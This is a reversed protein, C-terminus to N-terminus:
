DTPRRSARRAAIEGTIQQFKAETLPYFIMVAISLVAASALLGGAWLQISAGVGDAQAEGSSARAARAGEGAVAFGLGDGM